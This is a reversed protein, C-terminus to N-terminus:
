LISCVKYYFINIIILIFYWKSNNMHIYIINCFSNWFMFYSDEDWISDLEWIESNYALLIIFFNTIKTNRFM